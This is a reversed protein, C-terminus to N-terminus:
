QKLLVFSLLLKVTGSHAFFFFCFLRQNEKQTENYNFQKATAKANEKTEPCMWKRCQLLTQLPFSTKCVWMNVPCHGESTSLCHWQIGAAGRPVLSGDFTDCRPWVRSSPARSLTLRWCHTLGPVQVLPLM